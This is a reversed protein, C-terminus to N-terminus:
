GPPGRSSSESSPNAWKSTETHSCAKLPPNHRKNMLFVHLPVAANGSPKRVRRWWVHLRDFGRGVAWKMAQGHGHGFWWNRDVIKIVGKRELWDRAVKWKRDDWKVTIQRADLLKLWVEEAWDQPFSGDENRCTVCCYEVVSLFFSVWKWDVSAGRRELVNGYEDVHRKIGTVTGVFNRAWQNYKGVNIKRIDLSDKSARCKNPDFTLAIRKLLGKVRSRRRSENESWDGSFLMNVRIFQLGEEITAVRRLRRCLELLADQQRKYSNAEDRYDGNAKPVNSAVPAVESQIPSMSSEYIVPLSIGSAAPVFPLNACGKKLERLLSDEDYSGRQKIERLFSLASYTEFKVLPGDKELKKKRVCKALVGSSVVTVKDTRMPLGVQGCNHPFVEVDRKGRHNVAACGHQMLMEHIQKAIEEAESIPIPVYSFGFFKMSGNRPNVEAIWCFHPFHKRLLRGAKLVRWIHDKPDVSASHRDFDPAVFPVHSSSVAVVGRHLGKLHDHVPHWRRLPKEETPVNWYRFGDKGVKKWSGDEQLEEDAVAFGLFKQGVGFYLRKQLQQTATAETPTQTGTRNVRRIHKATATM